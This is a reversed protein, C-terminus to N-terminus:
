KRAKLLSYIRNFFGNNNEENLHNYESSIQQDQMKSKTFSGLEKYYNTLDDLANIDHRFCESLLSTPNKLAALFLHCPYTETQKLLIREADALLITTEAEKTLPISEDIFELYNIKSLTYNIKFKKFENEDSFAFNLISCTNERECDAIFFHITSIYDYGLNIATERSKSILEKLEYSFLTDM